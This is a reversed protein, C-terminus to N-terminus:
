SLKMKKYLAEIGELIADTVTYDLDGEGAHFKRIEYIMKQHEEPIRVTTPRVYPSNELTAKKLAKRTRSQGRGKQLVVGGKEISEPVLSSNNVNSSSEVISTAFSKKEKNPLLNIM